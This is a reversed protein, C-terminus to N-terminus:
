QGLPHIKRKQVISAANECSFTQFFEADSWLYKIESFFIKMAHECLQTRALIGVLGSNKTQVVFHEAARRIGVRFMPYLFNEVVIPNATRTFIDL